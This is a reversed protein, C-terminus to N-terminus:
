KNEELYTLHKKTKYHHSKHHKKYYGGCDCQIKKNLEEKNKEYYNNKVNKIKEKNDQRYNKRYEKLEKENILYWNNKEELTRLPSNVNLNANHLKIFKKEKLYREENKECEVEELIIFEFNEFENNERIFKYVQYNSRDSNNYCRLNHEKKRRPFNASSGVYCDLISKDKSEIKYFTILTM